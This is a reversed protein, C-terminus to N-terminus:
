DAKQKPTTQPPKAETKAPTAAPKSETAPASPTSSDKKAAEKYEKSRYDTIYFGSGKFILGAGAGIQRKVRGKGWPQRACREKPCVALANDNISQYFEFQHNCKHCVYEYTPMILNDGFHSCL